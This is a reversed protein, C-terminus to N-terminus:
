WVSCGESSSTYWLPLYRWCSQWRVSESLIMVVVAVLREQLVFVIDRELLEDREVLVDLGVEGLELSGTASWKMSKSSGNVSPDSSESWERKRSRVSKVIPVNGPWM